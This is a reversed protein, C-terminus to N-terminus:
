KLLKCDIKFSGDLELPLILTQFGRKNGEKCIKDRNKRNYEAHFVPKKARIFPMLKGCENYEFCEENIHFDFYPELEVIQDVDNKLAIALGRKHAEQSLFINYKLQNDYTLAFGTENIYGDVNDIEVGDFGKKKAFDLRRKMIDRINKSRIDLWREDWGSMKKGIISKKFSKADVRWDEYSGASFYAIVKKERKQLHKIQWLKTDFLDVVYVDVDKNLDIDGKLQWHWTADVSPKYWENKDGYCSLTFM